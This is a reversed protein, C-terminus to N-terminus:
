SESYHTLKIGEREAKERVADRVFREFNRGQAALATNLETYSVKEYHTTRPVTKFQRKRM